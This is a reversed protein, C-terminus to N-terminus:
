EPEDFACSRVDHVDRPEGWPGAGGGRGHRVLDDSPPDLFSGSAQRPQPEPNRPLGMFSEDPPLLLDEDSLRPFPRRSKGPGRLITLHDQPLRDGEPLEYADPHVRCPRRVEHAVNEGISKIRGLLDM